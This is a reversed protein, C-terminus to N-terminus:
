ARDAHRDGIYRRLRHIRNAMDARYEYAGYLLAAAIILALTKLHIPTIVPEDQSPSTGTTRAGSTQGGPTRSATKKSSSAAATKKTAPEHISNAKGPTPTDTWHWKGKALAWAIGDKAAGYPESGSIVKGYPDLLRVQGSANGLSLRTLSSYFATFGRGPLMTGQAFTYTHYTNLGTQLSFGSLDFPGTNPNFLEIFEDTSDNGTGTPNPLVENVVPAMLGIDAPPISPAAPLADTGLKVVAPPETPLLLQVQNLSVDPNAPVDAVLTCPNASDPHVPLWKGGGPRDIVLGDMGTSSQRVLFSATNAPLTQVGDASTKSWGVFDQLVPSVPGGSNTQSMSMVQIMGATSSLGLSVSAVITQYCLPLTSDNVVMYGHPPITGSLAILKSSTAKSLDFNNFYQLQYRSADLATGTANYLTIFQGNGSTIKLQSIALSPVEAADTRIPTLQVVTLCGLLLATLIAQLSRRIRWM